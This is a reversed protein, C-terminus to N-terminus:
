RSFEPATPLKIWKNFDYMYSGTKSAEIKKVVEKGTPEKELLVIKKDLLATWKGVYLFTYPQDEYILEHVQHCYETQKKLDYEERIKIILDDVRPNRYGVFNLQYHGTQSSHWIQYLDPDIGMSWGLVIADFNGVDVYKDLFVSWEVVDVEVKIGIKKWADQAIATIAERIPNGQNTILTFAFVKGEKELYGQKNKGWGAEELLKTAQPPDYPLSKIEYNYFESQKVFPGTTPEAQNYLLFEIIEPINLAMALAKRVQKDQFLERRLNYGIYTYGYALGSFNQYRPDKKFRDVQHSRAGYNDVTGAYFEMEQNVMDPVIRYVFKHYNPAGEWYDINRVLSIYQDAQWEQFKFPGVGIPNRNFNSDRLTFNEEIKGKKRAEEALIEKNLFHEPIIGIFWAYIAPSFLRKYIVKVTYLDVVVLEKIPEFDSTRPSRNKGEMISDYTFKVDRATFPEGDHWRVGKRLKFLIVPNHETVPLFRQTYVEKKDKLQPNSITIFESLDFSQFYGEGLVKEIKAFIQPDVEELTIKLRSPYRISIVTELAQEQGEVKEQVTEEKEQPPIVEIKKIGSLTTEQVEELLSVVKEVTSPKGNPLIAKTNVYFYAEEYIEWSTALRGRLNLDKDLDLLGEFVLGNIDSSSSDASLIPNLISADGISGTIFQTLRQPNGKVQDEYTPVWFYSQLLLLILVIPLGFILRKIVM